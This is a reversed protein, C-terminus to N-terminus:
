GMCTKPLETIFWSKTKMARNKLRLTMSLGIAM